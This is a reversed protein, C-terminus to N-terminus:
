LNLSGVSGLPSNFLFSSKLPLSASIQRREPPKYVSFDKLLIMAYEFLVSKQANTLLTVVDANKLAPGAEEPSWFGSTKRTGM